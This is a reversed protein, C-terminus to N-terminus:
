PPKLQIISPSIAYKTRIYWDGTEVLNRTEQVKLDIKFLDFSSIEINKGFLNGYITEFDKPLTFSFHSYSEWFDSM